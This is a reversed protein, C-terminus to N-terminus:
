GEQLLGIENEKTVTGDPWIITIPKEQKRAYNITYWTGGSEEKMTKPCALLVDSEDVIDRNRAFYSKSKREEDYECFARLDDKEPIHGITRFGRMVAQHYFTTDAGLCDGSHASIEEDEGFLIEEVMINDLAKIQVLPMQNRTGTFGVHM